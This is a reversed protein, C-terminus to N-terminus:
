NDLTAREAIALITAVRDIANEGCSRIVDQAEQVATLLTAVEALLGDYANVATVILAADLIGQTTTRGAGWDPRAVQDGNSDVIDIIEDGSVKWPLFKTEM